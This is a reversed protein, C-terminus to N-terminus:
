NESVWTRWEGTLPNKCQINVCLYFGNYRMVSRSGCGDCVMQAQYSYADTDGIRKSIKQQWKVLESNLTKSLSKDIKELKYWVLNLWNLKEIISPCPGSESQKQNRPMPLDVVEEILRSTSRVWLHFELINSLAEISLPYRRSFKVSRSKDIENNSHIFDWLKPYDGLLRDLTEETKM